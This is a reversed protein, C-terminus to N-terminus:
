KAGKHTGNFYRRSEAWVDRALRRGQADAETHDFTWHVGGYLRSHGVQEAADSFTNWKLHIDKSPMNTEITSSGAKIKGTGGFADSGTYQKLIEAGAATFGTHGSGYAAFAPTRLYPQWTAGDITRTGQNPGAYGRIQQGATAYRIMTIPRGYDFHVKTLWDVVGEDGEAMNLAFFLKVDDDLSHRDRKSVFAAWEQPISSSSSGKYQWHEALAKQRETLNANIAMQEKIAARVQESGYKPPAPPLYRGPNDILFPKVVAFQPTLFNHTTGNVTLPAWRDPEVLADKDFRNVDQPANVPKYFGEPAVYDGRQNSGDDSRDKLVADTARVAVHVPTGKKATGAEAPNYGLERLKADFTAKQLPLLDSLARHAAFSVAKRKNAETREKAPRRLAGGLQTGVAKGDYAAWADYMANHVVALTRAGVPPPTPHISGENAANMAASIQQNWQLVANDGGARGASHSAAGAHAPVTMTAALGLALATSVGWRLNRTTVRRHQNM